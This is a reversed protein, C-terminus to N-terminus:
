ALNRLAIVPIVKGSKVQIRYEILREKDDGEALHEMLKAVVRDKDDKYILESVFLNKLEDTSYGSLIEVNKNWTLLKGEKNFVYAHEPM